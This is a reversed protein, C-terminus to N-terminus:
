LQVHLQAAQWPAGVCGAPHQVLMDRCPLLRGIESNQLLKQTDFSVLSPLADLNPLMPFSMFSRGAMILDM